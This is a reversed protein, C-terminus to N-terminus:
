SYLETHRDQELKIKHALTQNQFEAEILKEQTDKKIMDYVLQCEIMNQIGIENIKDRLENNKKRTLIKKGNVM